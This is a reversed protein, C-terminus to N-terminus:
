AQESSIIQNIEANNIDTQLNCYDCDWRLDEEGRHLRDWAAQMQTISERLFDPLSCELYGRDAPLGTGGDTTIRCFLTALYIPFLAFLFLHCIHFRRLSVSAHLSPASIFSYMSLSVTILMILVAPNHSSSSLSTAIVQTSCVVAASTASTRCPLHIKWKSWKVRYWFHLTQPNSVGSTTISFSPPFTGKCANGLIYRGCPCSLRAHPQNVSLSKANSSTALIDEQPM